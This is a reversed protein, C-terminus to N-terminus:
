KPFLFPLRLIVFSDGEAAMFLPAVIRRLIFNLFLFDEARRFDEREEARAGLIPKRM